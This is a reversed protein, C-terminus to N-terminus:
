PLRLINAFNQVETLEIGGRHDWLDGSGTTINLVNKEGWIMVGTAGNGLMAGNVASPLPFDYRVTKLM